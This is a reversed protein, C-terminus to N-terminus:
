RKSYIFYYIFLRSSVILLWCKFSKHNMIYLKNRVWIKKFKKTSRYGLHFLYIIFLYVPFYLSCKVENLCCVIVYLFCVYVVACLSNMFSVSHIHSFVNLTPWLHGQLLQQPRPVGISMTSSISPIYLWTPEVRHCYIKVPDQCEKCVRIWKMCLLSLQIM